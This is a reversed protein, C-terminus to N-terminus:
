AIEEEHLVYRGYRTGYQNTEYLTEIDYGAKRLVFIRASLRTCIIGLKEYADLQTISGHKRLYDLVLEEQTPAQKKNHHICPTTMAVGRETKKPM